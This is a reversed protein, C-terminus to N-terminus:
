PPPGEWLASRPHWHREEKGQTKWTLTEPSKRRNLVGTKLEALVQVGVWSRVLTCDEPNPLPDGDEPLCHLAGLYLWQGQLM